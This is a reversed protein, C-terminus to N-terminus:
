EYNEGYTDNSVMKVSTDKNKFVKNRQKKM